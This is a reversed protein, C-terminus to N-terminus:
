KVQQLANNVAEKLASSTITAGSVNDIAEIEEQSSCGVFQSPLTDIAPTGIGETEGHELVEVLNIKGDKVQVKVVVDGGQGRDSVGLYEDEALEVDYTKKFLDNEKGPTYVIDSEVPMGSYAPLAAKPEAANRGAIPGFVLCEAVNGGGQYMHATLGGFEGASYLHPIPNGDTGLVEAKENREAGGQTNLISLKTFEYAYFPGESFPILSDKGRHFAEDRGQACYRNYDNVTEQLYDMGLQQELEALTNAQYLHGGQKVQDLLSSMQMAEVKAQDFIGFVRDPFGVIRWSGSVYVHGHRSQATGEENVFRTGDPGVIVTAGYAAMGALAYMVNSDSPYLCGLVGGGAEYNGMHWLRAGVETAMHIGDGTNWSSGFREFGDPMRRYLYNELMDDNFEFGGVALVVGNEAQVNVIEEKRKVQVGVITKSSPDQILHLAPTDYWVDIKEEEMVRDRILKYLAGDQVKDTITFAEFYESGDLQPHECDYSIIGKGRWSTMKSKDAGLEALYDRLGTMGECYTKLMTDSCTSYAGRLSSYYRMGGEVEKVTAFLQHCIRSNGGAENRPAKDVVLVRAGAKAAALAATAGAFGIGLIVVDYKGQWAITNAFTYTQETSAGGKADTSSCGGLLGATAAAATVGIAGKLFQRRSVEKM